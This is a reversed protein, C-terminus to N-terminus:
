RINRSMSSELVQIIKPYLPNINEVSRLLQSAAGSKISTTSLNGSGNQPASIKHHLITQYATLIAPIM